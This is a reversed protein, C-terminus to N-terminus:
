CIDGTIRLFNEHTLFVERNIEEIIYHVEKKDVKLDRELKELFSEVEGIERFIVEILFDYGNNIKYVSNINKNEILFNKLEEKYDKKVRLTIMARTNYGIKTFDIIAVYKKILNNEFEKLKNHITTIPICTIRSMKTLSERGDKRLRAIIMLNNKGIM